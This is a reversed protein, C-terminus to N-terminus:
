FHYNLGARVTDLETNKTTIFGGLSGVPRDADLEIRQYEVKFSWGQAIKSELGGGATYGTQIGNAQYVNGTFLDRFINKENGYALGGTAYLLSRGVSIGLRGRM